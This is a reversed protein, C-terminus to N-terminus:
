AAVSERGVKAKIKPAGAFFHLIQAFKAQLRRRIGAVEKHQHLM